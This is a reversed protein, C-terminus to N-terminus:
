KEPLMPIAITISYDDAASPSDAVFVAFGHATKELGIV